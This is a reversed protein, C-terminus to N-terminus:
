KRGFIVSLNNAPMEITKKLQLNEREAADVVAELERVGWDPNRTRLTNDFNANSNATHEGGIMYPGYLYLLGEAPLQTGANKMLSKTASWPTIHIMNICLIAEINDIPWKAEHVDLNLTDKINDLRAEAIRSSIASQAESDADSPQWILNPLKHAFHVIHQGTGSAVELVLGTEPLIRTLVDLIYPKNREAAASHLLIDEM